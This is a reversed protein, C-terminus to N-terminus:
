NKKCCVYITKKIHKIKYWRQLIELLAVIEKRQHFEVSIQDIVEALEDDFERIIDRESGECDLKLLSCHKVRYTNFVEYISLVKIKQHVDKHLGKQELYVSNTGSMNRHLYLESTGAKGVGLNVCKIKKEFGNIKVNYLLTEYNGKEPEFAIVDAGRKACMLATVGIHSGVDIVLEPKEPIRYPDGFEESIIHEDFYRVRTRLIFDGYVKDPNYRKDKM